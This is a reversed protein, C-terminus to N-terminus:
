EAERVAGAAAVLNRPEAKRNFMVVYPRNGGPALFDFAVQNIGPELRVVRSAAVPAAQYGHAEIECPPPPAGWAFVEVVAQFDRGAAVRAPATARLITLGGELDLALTKRMGSISTFRGLPVGDCAVDFTLGGPLMLHDFEGHRNTKVSFERGFAANRLSLRVRRAAAGGRTIRGDLVCAASAQVLAQLYPAEQTYIENRGHHQPFFPEGDKSGIGIIMMGPMHGLTTSMMDPKSDRGVEAILSYSSPNRGLQWQLLNIAISQLEADNLFAALRSLNYSEIGIAYVDYVPTDCYFAERNATLAQGLLRAHASRAPTIRPILPYPADQRYTKKVFLDAYIKLAAYYTFRNTGPLNSELLRILADPPAAPQTTLGPLYPAPRDFYGTVVDDGDVTEILTQQQRAILADATQLAMEGYQAKGTIGALLM